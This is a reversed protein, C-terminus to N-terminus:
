YFIPFLGGEGVMSRTRILTLIAAYNNIHIMQLVLGSCTIFNIITFNSVKLLSIRHKVIHSKKNLLERMSATVPKVLTIVM